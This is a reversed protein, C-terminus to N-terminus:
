ASQPVGGVVAVYLCAALWPWLTGGLWGDGAVTWQYGQYSTLDPRVLKYAITM